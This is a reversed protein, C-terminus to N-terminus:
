YLVLLVCTFVFAICALSLWVISLVKNKTTVAEKEETDSKNLFVDYTKFGLVVALALFCVAYFVISFKMVLNEGTFQFILVLITAIIATTFSAIDIAKIIDKKKM